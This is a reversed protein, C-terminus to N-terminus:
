KTKEMGFDHCRHTVFADYETFTGKDFLLNIRERATLKNRKHQDEIRKNGLTFPSCVAAKRARASSTLSNASSPSLHPPLHVVRTALARVGMPALQKTRLVVQM